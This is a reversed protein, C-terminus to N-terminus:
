RCLVVVLEEVDEVDVVTSPFRARNNRNAAKRRFLSASHKTLWAKRAVPRVVM